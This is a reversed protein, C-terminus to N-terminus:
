AVHCAAVGRYGRAVCELLPCGDDSRGVVYYHQKKFLGCNSCSGFAEASDPGPSLWVPGVVCGVLRVQVARVRSGPRDCSPGPAKSGAGVGHAHRPDAEPQGQKRRDSHAHITLEEASSRDGGITRARAYNTPRECQVAVAMRAVIHAAWAERQRCRDPQGSLGLARQRQGIRCAAAALVAM